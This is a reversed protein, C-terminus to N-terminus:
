TADILPRDLHIQLGRLIQSLSGAYKLNVVNPDFQESWCVQRGNADRPAHAESPKGGNTAFAACDHSSGRLNPGLRGEQDVRLEYVPLQRTESHIRLQFREALLAKLMPQAQSEVSGDPLTAMIDFRVNLTKDPGGFLRSPGMFPGGLGYAQSIIMRLPMNLVRCLRGQVRFSLNGDRSASLKVSAAEFAPEVAVPSQVPLVLFAAPAVAELTLVVALGLASTLCWKVINVRM